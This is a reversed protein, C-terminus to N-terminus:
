KLIVFFLFINISFLNVHTLNSLYIFLYDNFINPFVKDSLLLTIKLKFIIVMLLRSGSTEREM